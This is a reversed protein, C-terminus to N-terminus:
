EYHFYHNCPILQSIDNQSIEFSEICISCLKEKHIFELESAKKKQLQNIKEIPIGSDPDEYIIRRIENLRGSHWSV